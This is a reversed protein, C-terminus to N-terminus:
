PSTWMNRIRIFNHDDEQKLCNEKVDELWEHIRLTHVDGLCIGILFTLLFLAGSVRIFLNIQLGRRKELKNRVRSDIQMGASIKAIKKATFAM